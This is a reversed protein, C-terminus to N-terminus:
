RDFELQLLRAHNLISRRFARPTKRLLPIELKPITAFGSPERFGAKSPTVAQRYRSSFYSSTRVRAFGRCARCTPHSTESRAESSGSKWSDPLRDRGLEIPEFATITWIEGGKWQPFNSVCRARVIVQATRALRGVTLREFTTAPAGHAFILVAAAFAFTFRIRSITNM